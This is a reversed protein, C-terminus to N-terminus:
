LGTNSGEIKRKEEDIHGINSSAMSCSSPDEESLLEFRRLLNVLVKHTILEMIQLYRQDSPPNTRRQGFSLIRYTTTM